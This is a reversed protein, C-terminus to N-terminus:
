SQLALVKRGAETLVVSDQDREVLGLDVADEWVPLRPCSTRWADMVEHYPRPGAKLFVLLDVVLADPTEM